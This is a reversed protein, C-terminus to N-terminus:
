YSRPITNGIDRKDFIDSFARYFPPVKNIKRSTHLVDIDPLESGPLPNVEGYEKRLPINWKKINRAEVLIPVVKKGFSTLAISKVFYYKESGYDDIRAQDEECMWIGLWELYLFLYNWDFTLNSLLREKDLQLGSKLKESILINFVDPLIDHVGSVKKDLLRKWNVDVWFTELLFLYKETDTLKYFVRSLDTILLRPTTSDLLTKEVLRGALAIHYFFHIYPYHIQQSNATVNEAKVSMCENLKPLSKEYIYEATKTIPVPEKEIYEIFRTFDQVIHIPFRKRDQRLDTSQNNIKTSSAVNDWENVDDLFSDLSLQEMKFMRNNAM